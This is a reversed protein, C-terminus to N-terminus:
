EVFWDARRTFRLTPCCEGLEYDATEIRDLIWGDACVECLQRLTPFTYATPKARYADITDVDSRPWGTLRVLEEREFEREFLELIANVPVVGQAQAALLMALRWKFVHFGGILGAHLDQKLGQITEAKDPRLFCRLVVRGEPRTVRWIERMVAHYEAFAPLANLSGDGVVADFQGTRAPLDQWRALRACARIRPNSRWVAGIMGESCDFAQLRTGVPWDLQVLEPTVGLVAVECSAPKGAFVVALMKLLLEGDKLSPRLPAGVRSWQESHERWVALQEITM